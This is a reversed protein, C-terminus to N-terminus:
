SGITEDFLIDSLTNSEEQEHLVDAWKRIVLVQDPLQSNVMWAPLWGGPDNHSLYTIDLSNHNSNDVDQKVIHWGSIHIASRVFGKKLPLANHEISTCVMYSENDSVYDFLWVIYFERNAILASPTEYLIQEMKYMQKNPDENRNLDSLTTSKVEVPNSEMLGPAVREKRLTVNSHVRSLWKAFQKANLRTKVQSVGKFMHHQSDSSQKSYRAINEVQSHFKWGNNSSQCETKLMQLKQQALKKFSDLSEQDIDVSIIRSTM